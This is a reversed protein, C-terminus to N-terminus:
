TLTSTFIELFLDIEKKNVSIPPMLRITSSDCSSGIILGKQLCQKVLEPMSKEFHVGLLFGEGSVSHIYPISLLKSKLYSSNKQVKQLFGRKLIESVTALAAACVVPGGGFTTAHEGPKISKSIKNNVLVSSLPLGSALGKATTIIDPKVDVSKSFWFNGTRGLGTQVEDFILLIGKKKCLAELKKYFGKEAMKVGGISQIPECIVAATDVNIAKEVSEINGLEAFTTYSDLNPSFQHYSDIGTVGLATISRGHFSDKFSVIHKKGTHKRAIKLAAENAESGSNAFYVQYKEPLLTKVLKIALLTAPKTHFVNSYFILSSCQQKIAHTVPKSCHGIIAVAHGGYFDLYKKGNSNWVFSGNGKVIEIPYQMYTQILAKQSNKLSIM